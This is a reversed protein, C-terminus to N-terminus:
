RATACRRRPLLRLLHSSPPPPSPPLPPPHRGARRAQGIPDFFVYILDVHKAVAVIADEVPFPYQFSGDVLGPTDIFTIMGFLKERSTCVQLPLLALHAAHSRM